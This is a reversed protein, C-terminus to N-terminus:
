CVEMEHAKIFNARGYMLLRSDPLSGASGGVCVGEGGGGGCGGGWGVCVCVRWGGGATKIHITGIIIEM